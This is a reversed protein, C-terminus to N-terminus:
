EENYFGGISPLNISTNSKPFRAFVLGLLVLIALIALFKGLTYLFGRSLQNIVLKM